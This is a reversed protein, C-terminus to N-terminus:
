NDLSSDPIMSFQEASEKQRYLKHLAAKRVEKLIKYKVATALYNKLSKIEQKHRNKWISIFVDHVVDEAAQWNKLRNFAMGLLLQWYRHYIEEFADKDNESLRLLLKREEYQSLQPM